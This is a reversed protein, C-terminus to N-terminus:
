GTIGVGSVRQQDLEVAEDAAPGDAPVALGGGAGSLRIHWRGREALEKESFPKTIYDDAGQKIGWFRDESRTKSSVLVIKIDETEPVTKLQRCVQFGNKKPLIVDLLILAPRHEVAMELAAEGDTAQLVEFGAGELAKVMLRLETPSDDVCLVSQSHM